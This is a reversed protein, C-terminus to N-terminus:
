LFVYVYQYHDTGFDLSNTQGFIDTVLSVGDLEALNKNM